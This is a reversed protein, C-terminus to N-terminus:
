RPLLREPMAELVRRVEDYRYKEVDKLLIPVKAVGYGGRELNRYELGTRWIRGRSQCFTPIFPHLSWNNFGVSDAAAIAAWETENLDHISAGSGLVFLTDSKRKAGLSKWVPNSDM